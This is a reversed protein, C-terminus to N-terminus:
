NVDALFIDDDFWVSLYYDSGLLCRGVQCGRYDRNLNGQFGTVFLYCQYRLLLCQILFCAGNVICHVADTTYSWQIANVYLPRLNGNRRRRRERFSHRNVSFESEWINGEVKILPSKGTFPPLHEGLDTLQDSFVFFPEIELNVTM